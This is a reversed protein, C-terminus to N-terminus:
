PRSVTSRAFLRFRASVPTQRPLWKMDLNQRRLVDLTFIVQCVQRWLATEYRNLLEFGGNDIKALGIFRCAIEFNSKPELAVPEAKGCSNNGSERMYNERHSGNWKVDLRIASEPERAMPKELPRPDGAKMGGFKAGIDNQIQFLGTEIATARRLRWLLSALRLVLEREVASQPDYGAAISAEFAKYDAPDELGDVVTEATLGHRVANRRSRRKGEDTKPGTSNVANRHNADIQRLSTMLILKRLQSREAIESENLSRVIVGPTFRIPLLPPSLTTRFQRWRIRRCGCSGPLSPRISGSKGGGHPKTAAATCRAITDAASRSPSSMALRVVSHGGKHSGCITPILPNAAASWALTSPWRDSMRGTGFGAPSRFPLTGKDVGRTRPRNGSARPKSGRAPRMVWPRAPSRELPPAEPREPAESAPLPKVDASPQDPVGAQDAPGGFGALKAQFAEEVRRADSATLRNKEGLRRKAWLAADDGGSSLEGLETVLRDRLEASAEPGLMPEIPRSQPMSRRRGDLPLAPRSHGGNLLGNGSPKPTETGAPQQRPTTLDPADLDDEGAIGVLTFLAYRRAYTLAAGMRHPAVTESIACVPWDSAIWEGSSHALVTTLNVAGASQDIATTQVTAIEHQGLTKRVIDLGSALSAYRFSQETGKPGDSRITAVLSKEPNVLEGQAKALAAALSAISSSSRHM